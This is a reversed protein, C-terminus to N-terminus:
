RRKRSSGSCPALRGYALDLIRETVEMAAFYRLLHGMTDSTTRQRSWDVILLHGDDDDNGGSDNSRHVVVSDDDVGVGVDRRGRLDVLRLSGVDDEAHRRLASWAQAPGIISTLAFVM